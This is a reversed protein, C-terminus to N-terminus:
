PKPVGGIDGRLWMESLKVTKKTPELKIRRARPHGDDGRYVVFLRQTEDHLNLGDLAAPQNTTVAITQENRTALAAMETILRRCLIPHLGAEVNEIFIPRTAKTPCIVTALCYLAWRHEPLMQDISRSTAEKTIPIGIKQASAILRSRSIKTTLWSVIEKAMFSGYMHGDDSDNFGLSKILESQGTGNEGIFVNLNGLGTFWDVLMSRTAADMRCFMSVIEAARLGCFLSAAETERLPTKREVM